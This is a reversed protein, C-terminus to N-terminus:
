NFMNNTPLPAGLLSNWSFPHSFKAQNTSGLVHRRVVYAVCEGDEVNNGEHCFRGLVFTCGGSSNKEGTKYPGNGTVAATLCHQVHRVLEDLPQVPSSPAPLDAEGDMGGDLWASDDEVGAGPAHKPPDVALMCTLWGEEGVVQPSAGFGSAAAQEGGGCSNFFRQRYM